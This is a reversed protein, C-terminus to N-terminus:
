RVAFQCVSSLRRMHPGKLHKSEYRRHELNDSLGVDTAYYHRNAPVIAATVHKEAM